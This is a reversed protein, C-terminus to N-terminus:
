VLSHALAIDILGDLLQGFSIGAAEAQKPLISAPTLGPLTNTEIMYLKSSNDLIMDTRSYGRCGLAKHAKIAVQKIEDILPQPLDPPTIEDAGGDTYKADYDFFESRLPILETPPLAYPRGSLADELVSCSFERGKICAQIMVRTDFRFANTIAMPIQAATKILYVGVSSGQGVPKVFVPLAHNGEPLNISHRHKSDIVTTAPIRLGVDTYVKNSRDKDMALSSSESSSGTFAIHQTEFIHQIVGDEGFTGHLGIFVAAVKLQKLRSLAVELKLSTPNNGFRWMKNKTIVVKIAKYKTPDLNDLVAQGTKLSIEHEESPGGMIVAIRRM